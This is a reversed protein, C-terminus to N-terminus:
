DSVEKPKTSFLITAGYMIGAVLEWGSPEKSPAELGGGSTRNSHCGCDKGRGFRHVRKHNVERGNRRLHHWVTRCGARKEKASLRLIEEVLAKDKDLRKLHYRQTSRPQRTARCARRESVDLSQRVHVVAERKRAPGVM